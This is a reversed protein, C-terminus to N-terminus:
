IEDSLTLGNSRLYPIAMEQPVSPNRGKPCPRQQDWLFMSEPIKPVSPVWRNPRSLQGGLFM